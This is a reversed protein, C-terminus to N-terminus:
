PVMCKYGQEPINDPVQSGNGVNPIWIDNKDPNAVQGDMNFDGAKYGIHGSQIAWIDNKDPNGIQGNADGDGGIMGWINAAIEKHGFIGGYTQDAGATFDYTYVGGTEILANASMVGLHNRHWIVVFLNHIISHNFSLISSGDLGVISGDNLIFAAQQAIISDSTATSANGTTERLEVLVWDVINNNPITAVSETGTYNWPSINFPQSLPVYGLLNLFNNMNTGNFPGELFEKINLSTASIVELTVPITKVPNVPDNSNIIIEANYTGINLGTADFHVTVDVSGGNPPVIGSGNNTISLWTYTVVDDMEMAYFRDVPTGQAIGGLVVKGPVLDTAFFAGGNVQSTSGTLLPVQYSIGTLTQTYIDYEYFSTQPEGSRDHIWLRNTRDDYALGYVNTLGPSSLTGYQTGTADFEIIDTTWNCCYFHGNTPNYAVARLCGLGLNGTFQTTVNGNSPEIKYFGNEDGAYLNTGDFAMDRMGWSTSTGQDYTDILNGSIDFKYLKNAGGGTIWIYTGDFGCGLIGGDGTPTQVDFDILIDGAVDPPSFGIPKYPSFDATTSTENHEVITGLNLISKFDSFKTIYSIDCNYNLEGNGTNSIQMIEDANADIHLTKYFNLPDVVIFPTENFIPPFIIYDIWACDSGASVSYDKNYVWKFTHSGTSVPYSVESWAVTGSWAYLLTGDIWFELYDYDPESSVKRFFSINGATTVELTILLQSSQNHYISGSKACYVGEYPDETVVSWNANGGFTWPFRSFDGTEWDEFILGVTINLDFNNTYTGGNSSVFLDIIENHGIPTLPDASITFTGNASEYQAINGFDAYPDVLTIYQSTLILEGTVNEATIDGNNRLTVIIDATEGPDLIGNNNGNSDNIYYNYLTLYIGSVPELAKIADLDFGADPATATGDGDDFIKIFQAETLNANFLDFETTGTGTGLSLWPGDITQGAYCTYGEPSSDGEYVIFDNGPGDVIPYQMDVVVWGNKGISYNINDPAGIIAPTNGEDATNNNPIQSSSIKYIYQGDEPQLQFDTVTSSNATVTVNDITQTEYGNAVITISYTGPLVYKHYDGATPDSYTPFYDNIFVAAAVPNSTNADTV